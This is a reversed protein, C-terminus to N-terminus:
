VEICDGCHLYQLKEGMIEKMIKYPYEGTCHGTYCMIGTKELQKATNEILILEEQSYGNKNKMHFGSIIVDPDRQYKQRFVQLINLIGNHACGSILVVKEKEKLVLYQEHLFDDQIFDEKVKEKLVLNGKPWFLLKSKDLIDCIFVEIKENYKFSGEVKRLTNLINIKEDLGIYREGDKGIHWFNDFAKKQMIIDATSNRKSFSLIGGGHDYHGHSLFVAEVKSLDIGLVDANELFLASSGTDALIINEEM